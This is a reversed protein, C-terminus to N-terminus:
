VPRKGDGKKREINNAAKTAKNRMAEVEAGGMAASLKMGVASSYWFSVRMLAYKFFM